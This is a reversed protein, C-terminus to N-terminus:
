IEDYINYVRYYLLISIYVHTIINHLIYYTYLTYGKCHTLIGHATRSLQFSIMIFIHIINYYYHILSVTHCVIAPRSRTPGLGDDNNNNILWLIHTRNKKEGDGRGLQVFMTNIIIPSPFGRSVVATRSRRRDETRIGRQECSWQLTYYYYYLISMAWVCVCVCVCVCV